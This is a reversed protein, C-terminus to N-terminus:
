TEVTRRTRLQVGIFIGAVLAALGWGGLSAVTPPPFFSPAPYVAWTLVSDFFVVERDGTTLDVRYLLELNGATSGGFYFLGDPGVAGSPGFSNPPSPGSGILTGCKVANWCSVITVVGTDSDLHTVQGPEALLIDGAKPVVALAPTTLATMGLLALCLTLPRM